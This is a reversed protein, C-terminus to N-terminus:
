KWSAICGWYGNALAFYRPAIARPACLAIGHPSTIGLRRSSIHMHEWARKMRSGGANFIHWAISSRREMGRTM